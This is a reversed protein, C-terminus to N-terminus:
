RAKWHFSKGNSIVGFYKCDSEMGRTHFTFKPETSAWITTVPLHLGNRSPYDPFVNYLKFQLFQIMHGLLSGAVVVKVKYNSLTRIPCKLRSCNIRKQYM